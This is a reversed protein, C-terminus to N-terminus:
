VMGFCGLFGLMNLGGLANNECLHFVTPVGRASRKKIEKQVSIM